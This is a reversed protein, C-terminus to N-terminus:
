LETRVVFNREKKTMSKKDKNRSHPHLTKARLSWSRARIMGFLNSSNLYQPRFTYNNLALLKRNIVINAM